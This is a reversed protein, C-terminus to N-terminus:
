GRRVEEKEWKGEDGVGESGGREGGRCEIAVLFRKTAVRQGWAVGRERWGGEREGSGREREVGRRGVVRRERM